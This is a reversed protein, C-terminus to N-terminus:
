EKERFGRYMQWVSGLIFLVYMGATMVIDVENDTNFWGGPSHHLELSIVFSILLIIPIAVQAFSWWAQFVAERLFLTITSFFLVIPLLYLIHEIADFIDRCYFNTKSCIGVDVSYRSLVLIFLGLLSGTFVKKSKSM